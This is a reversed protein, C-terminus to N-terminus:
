FHTYDGHLRIVYSGIALSALVVRITLAGTNSKVIPIPGVATLTSNYINGVSSVQNNSSFNATNDVPLSMDFFPNLGTSTVSLSLSFSIVDGQRTYQGSDTTLTSINSQNSFVPSYNGQTLGTSGIINGSIDTSLVSNTVFSLKCGDQVELSSLLM